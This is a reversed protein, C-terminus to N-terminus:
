QGQERRRTVSSARNGQGDPPPRPWRQQQDAVEGVSGLQELAALKGADAAPALEGLGSVVYEGELLPHGAQDDQAWSGVAASRGSSLARGGDIPCVRRQHRSRFPPAHPQKAAHRPPGPAGASRWM